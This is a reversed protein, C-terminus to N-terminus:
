SFFSFSLNSSTILSAPRSASTGSSSPFSRISLDFRTRVKSSARRCTTVFTSAFNPKLIRSELGLSVPERPSESGHINTRDVRERTQCLFLTMSDAHHTNLTRHLVNEVLSCHVCSCLCAITQCPCVSCTMTWSHPCLYSYLSCPFIWLFIWLFWLHWLSACPYFM